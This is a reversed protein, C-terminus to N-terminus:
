EFDWTPAQDEPPLPPGGLADNIRVRTDYPATGTLFELEKSPWTMAGHVHDPNTTAADQYAPQTWATEENYKQRLEPTKQILQWHYAGAPGLHVVDDAPDYIFPLRTKGPHAPDPRFKNYLVRANATTKISAIYEGSLNAIEPLLGRQALFKYAINSESFDGKGRKQDEQRRRHLAHWFQIAKDPEYRLLREMKDAVELAYMYFGNEEQEVNHVRSPEPPVIWKETSLDYGSRLGPQVLDIPKVGHAVVFCQMPFPTGPLLTGDVKGVMVGIMEARSWEPFVDENVFLSTDVDSSDSYQYTTLSGTLVLGLWQDIDTYGAESLASRVTQIIWRRHIEKLRPRPSTPDDWVRSDLTLHGQADQHIQDLINAVTVSM